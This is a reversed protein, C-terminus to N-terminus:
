YCRRKGRCLDIRRRLAGGCRCGVQLEEFSPIILFNLSSNPAAAVPKDKKNQMKSSAEAPESDGGIDEKDQAELRKREAKRKRKLLIRADVLRRAKRKPAHDPPDPRQVVPEEWKVLHKIFLVLQCCACLGRLPSSPFWM